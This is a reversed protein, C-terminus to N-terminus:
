RRRVTELLSILRPAAVHLSYNEQIRRRGAVGMRRRDEPSDILHALAQRWESESRALHGTVGEQVIARNVGVPSAVVPLGCAMYQVLKYGSKGETWPENPLPMIGIDMEQVERVETEESWEVLDLGPFADTQARV